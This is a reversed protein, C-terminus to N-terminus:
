PLMSFYVISASSCLVSLLLCDLITNVRCEIRLYLSLNSMERADEGLPVFPFVNLSIASM